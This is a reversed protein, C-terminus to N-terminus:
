FYHKLNKGNIPFEFLEGDLNELLFKNNGKAKATNFPSFWLPDFKGHKGKDERRVDWRIVLDGLHFIRDKAKRDFLANM